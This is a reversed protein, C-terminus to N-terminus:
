FSKEASLNDLKEMIRVFQPKKYRATKVVFHQVLIYILDIVEAMATVQGLFVLMITKSKLVNYDNPVVQVPLCSATSIQNLFFTSM